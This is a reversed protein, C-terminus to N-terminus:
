TIPTEVREINSPNRTAQNGSEPKKLHAKTGEGRKGPIELIQLPARKDKGGKIFFIGRIVRLFWRENNIDVM